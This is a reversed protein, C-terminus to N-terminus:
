FATVATQTITGNDDIRLRESGDTSFYMDDVNHDYAVVGKSENDGSTGDSFYIYGPQSVSSTNSGSRITMGCRGQDGGSVGQNNFSITFDDANPNGETTTNVCM